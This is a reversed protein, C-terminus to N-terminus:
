VGPHLSASHSHLTEGLSVVRHGPLPEFGSRGSDLASVMLVGRRGGDYKTGLHFHRNEKTIEIRELLTLEPLTQHNMLIPKWIQNNDNNEEGRLKM